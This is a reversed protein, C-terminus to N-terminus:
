VVGGTTPNLRYDAGNSSVVRIRDAAPNFDFGIRKSSAGVSGTGLPLPVPTTNVAAASTMISTGTVVPTLIYLQTNTTLTDYGLGYLKGTNPRFDIGVLIQGATIGSIPSFNTSTPQGTTPSVTILAQTGKLYTPGSFSFAAYTNVLGYLTSQAFAGTASAVLLLTVLSRLWPSGLRCRAPLMRLPQLM